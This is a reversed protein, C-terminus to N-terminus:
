LRRAPLLRSDPSQSNSERRGSAIAPGVFRAWSGALLFYAYCQLLQGGGMMGALKASLILLETAPKLLSEFLEVAEACFTRVDAVGMQTPEGGAEALAAPLAATEGVRCHLARMLNARMALGMRNAAYKQLANCAAAPVAWLAYSLQRRFLAPWDGQSLMAGLVGIETSLKISAALRLGIGVSLVGAWAVPRSRMSPVALGLLHRMPASRAATSPEPAKADAEAQRVHTLLQTAEDGSGRLQKAKAALESAGAYDGAKLRDRAEDLAAAAPTSKLKPPALTLVAAQKQALAALRRARRKVLLARGSVGVFTAAWAAILLRGETSSTWAKLLRSLM